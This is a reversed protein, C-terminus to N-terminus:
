QATQKQSDSMTLMWETIERSMTWSVCTSQLSGQRLCAVVEDIEYQYGMVPYDLPAVATPSGEIKTIIKSPHFFDQVTISGLEGKFTAVHPRYGSAGYTLTAERGDPYSFRFRGSIDTGTDAFRMEADVSANKLGWTRHLLHIPYIGIDLLAGGGLKPNYIRHSPNFPIDIHFAAHISRVPGIPALRKELMRYFPFCRMWMAEMLFRKKERAKATLQDLTETTLTIPKEVLVPKDHELGLLANDYHRDNTTAVYIIDISEHTALFEYSKSAIPIRHQKAFREARDETPSAVGVLEADPHIRLEKAFIGAM